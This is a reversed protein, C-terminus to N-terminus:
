AFISMSKENIYKREKQYNRVALNCLSFNSIDFEAKSCEKELLTKFVDVIWDEDKVLNRIGKADYGNILLLNSFKNIAQQYRRYYSRRKINITSIITEVNVKDVYKLMLLKCSNLDLNDLCKEILVKLNILTIKRQTLEIMKQTDRYTKNVGNIYGSSLAYNLVIKDIENTLKNLCGYVNLLTKSWIKLEM